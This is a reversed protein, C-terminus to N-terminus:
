AFNAEIYSGGNRIYPDLVYESGAEDALVLAYIHYPRVPQNRYDFSITQDTVQVNRFQHDKAEGSPHDQPRKFPSESTMLRVFKLRLPTMLRLTVDVPGHTNGLDILGTLHTHPGFFRAELEELKGPNGTVRVDITVSARALLNTETQNIM